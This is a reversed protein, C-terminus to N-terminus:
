DGDPAKQKKRAQSAWKVESSFAHAEEETFSDTLEKLREIQDPSIQNMFGDPSM